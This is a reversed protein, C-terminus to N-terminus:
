DIGRQALEEAAQARESHAAIRPDSHIHDLIAARQAPELRHWIRDALRLGHVQENVSRADTVASLVAEADALAHDGDMLGLAIARVVPPGDRFIRQVEAPDFSNTMAVEAARAILTDQLHTKATRHQPEDLAHHIFGYADAFRALETGDLIGATRSAGLEQVTRTLRLQEGGPPREEWRDLLFPSIVLLFGAVIPLATLGVGAQRLAAVAGIGLMTVGSAILVGRAALRPWQQEPNRSPKPDRFAATSRPHPPTGTDTETDTTM